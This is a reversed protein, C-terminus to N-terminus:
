RFLVKSVADIARGSFGDLLEEIVVDAVARKVVYNYSPYPHIMTTIDTMSIKKKVALMLEFIMEGARDAVVTAGLLNSTSTYVLKIFGETDGEVVTRDGRSTPLNYVKVSDGYQQRAEAETMGVHAVEPDTYTVWPLVDDHGRSNLVPFTANRGAIGGQFGAYHTFKPATTCDGVAYIHKVNTRLYDDVGIGEKTYHVGANELGLDTNPTRGVAVILADGSVRQGNKLTATITESDKQVSDVLSEIFTVGEEEFVKLMVEKAEPEDRQLFGIDMMTVKAGLRAHAQAMEAGIPGAGMVLLHEPLKDNTFVTRNTMYPVDELGDIPPVTPRAGTAVVFKKAKLQRDGVQVTHADIFRAEGIIVEPGYAASYVEPTEHQYIERIADQVYDRVATMDVQPESATIGYKHATRVSHAMKSVKLLAKSPVCGYWTCDGGLAEKEILAVKGGVRGMFGAATLGATGAGIVVLDYRESM